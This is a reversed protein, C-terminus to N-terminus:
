INNFLLYYLVRRLIFYTAFSIHHLILTSQATVLRMDTTLLVTCAIDTNILIKGFTYLLILQVTWSPCVEAFINALFNDSSSVSSGPQMTFSM